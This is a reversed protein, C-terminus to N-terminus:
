PVKKKKDPSPKTWERECQMKVDTNNIADTAAWFAERATSCEKSVAEKQCTNTCTKKLWPACQKKSKEGSRCMAKNSRCAMKCSRFISCSKRMHVHADMLKKANRYTSVSAMKCAKENSVDQAFLSGPLAMMTCAFVLMCPILTFRTM